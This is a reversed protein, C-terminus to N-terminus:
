RGGRSGRGVLRKMMRSSQRPSNLSIVRRSGPCSFAIMVLQIIFSLSTKIDALANTPRNLSAWMLQLLGATCEARKSTLM